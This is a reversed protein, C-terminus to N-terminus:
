VKLDVMKRITFFGIFYLVILGGFGISFMPDASVDLFFSPNLMFLAVFVIVPLATLMIASMRGESSLARVKMMMSARDRIVKSLSELIEALNGGTESQVSLSVVFMRMDESQWREAMASLADKLEAGYTVEDVVLGFESGLPDSMETTLLDLAAATPHGARLARVFVDLAVPFQAEVRKRRREGKAQLLMLPLGAGFIASLALLLLLRGAGLALGAAGGVGLMLLFLIAPSALLILALRASPVLMGAAILMRELRLAANRLFMPMEDPLDNGRRRLIRLTEDRSMGSQIMDLRKNIARSAARRGLTADFLREAAIAVAAFVVVLVLIRLIQPLM